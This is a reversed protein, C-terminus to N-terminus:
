EDIFHPYCTDQRVDMGFRYYPDSSVSAQHTRQLACGVHSVACRSVKIKLFFHGTLALVSGPFLLPSIISLSPM